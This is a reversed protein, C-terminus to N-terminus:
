SLSLSPQIQVQRRQGAEDFGRFQFAYCWGSTKGDGAIFCGATAGHQMMAMAARGKM